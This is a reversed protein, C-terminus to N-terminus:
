RDHLRFAAANIGYVPVSLALIAVARVLNDPALWAATAFVAVDVLLLLAMALHVRVTFPHPWLDALVRGGHGELIAHYTEDRVRYVLDFAPVVALGTPREGLDGPSAPPERDVTAPQGPELSAPLHRAADVTTPFAARLEGSPLQWYPLDVRHAALLQHRRPARRSRLAAALQGPVETAEVRAKLAWVEVPHPGAWALGARCAPCSRVPEGDAAVPAACRPCGAALGSAGGVM